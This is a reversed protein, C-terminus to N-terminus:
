RGRAAVAAAPAPARRPRESKPATPKKEGAGEAVVIEPLALYEDFTRQLVERPILMRKYEAVMASSM